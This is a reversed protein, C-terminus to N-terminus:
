DRSEARAPAQDRRLSAAGNLQRSPAVTSSASPEQGAVAIRRLDQGAPLAQHAHEVEADCAPGRRDIDVGSPVRLRPGRGRRRLASRRGRGGAARQAMRPQNALATWRHGQSQGEDAMRLDARAAREAPPERMGDPRRAAPPSPPAPARSASRLAAAARVMAASSKGEQRAVASAGSSSSVSIASGGHDTRRPPAQLLHRSRARRSRAPRRRRWVSGLSAPARPPRVRPRSRTPGRGTRCWRRRASVRPHRATPAAGRRPRGARGAGRDLGDSSMWALPAQRLRRAPIM